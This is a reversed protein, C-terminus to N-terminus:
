WRRRRRRRWRWRELELLYMKHSCQADASGRAVYINCCNEFNMMQKETRGRCCVCVCVGATSSLGRFAGVCMNSLLFFFVFLSYCGVGFTRKTRWDSANYGFTSCVVYINMVIRWKTEILLFSLYLPNWECILESWQVTGDTTRTWFLSIVCDSARERVCVCFSFTLKNFGIKAM